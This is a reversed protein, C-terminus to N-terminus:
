RSRRRGPAPRAPSTGARLAAAPPRPTAAACDTLPEVTMADATGTANRTGGRCDRLGVGFHRLPGRSGYTRLLRHAVVLNRAPLVLGSEFPSLVLTTLLVPVWGVTRAAPDIARCLTHVRVTYFLVPPVTVLALLVSLKLGDQRWHLGVLVCMIAFWAAHLAYARVLSRRAQRLQRVLGDTDQSRDRSPPQRRPTRTM